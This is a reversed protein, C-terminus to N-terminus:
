KVTSQHISKNIQGNMFSCCKNSSHFCITCMAHVFYWYTNPSDNENNSSDRNKNQKQEKLRKTKTEAVSASTYDYYRYCCYCPWLIMSVSDRMYAVTVQSDNTWSIAQRRNPVLGNHSGISNYKFSGIPVFNLSITDFHLLPWVLFHM